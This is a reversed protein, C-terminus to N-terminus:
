WSVGIGVSLILPPAEGGRFLTEEFERTISLIRALGFQYHLGFNNKKIFVWKGGYEVAAVEILGIGGDKLSLNFFSSNRRSNTHIKMGITGGILGAGIHFGIYDHVRIEYDVGVLTYGGIQYGLAFVNQSEYDGIERAQSWVETQIILILLLVAINRM